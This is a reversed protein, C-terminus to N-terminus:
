ESEGQLGELSKESFKKNRPVTHIQKMYGQKWFIIISQTVLGQRSGKNSSEKVSYKVNYPVEDLSCGCSKKESEVIKLNCYRM